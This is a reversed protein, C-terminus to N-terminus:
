RHIHENLKAEVTDICGSCSYRTLTGRSFATAWDKKIVDGCGDCKCYDPSDDPDLKKEVTEHLSLLENVDFGYEQLYELQSVFGDNNIRSAEESKSDTVLGDFADEPVVSEALRAEIDLGPGPNEFDVIIEGCNTCEIAHSEGGAYTNFEVIHGDAVHKNIKEWSM